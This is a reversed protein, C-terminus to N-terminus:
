SARLCSYAVHWQECLKVTSAVDYDTVGVCGGYLAGSGHYDLRSVGCESGDGGSDEKYHRADDFVKFSGGASDANKGNDACWPEALGKRVAAGVRGRRAM